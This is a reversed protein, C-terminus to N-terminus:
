FLIRIRKRYGEEPTVFLLSRNLRTCWARVDNEFTPCDGIIEVMEGPKIHTSLITLKVIPQPCKLGTTDLEQLEV